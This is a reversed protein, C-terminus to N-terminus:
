FGISHAFHSRAISGQALYWIQSSFLPHLSVLCTIHMCLLQLPTKLPNGHCYLSWSQLAAQQSSVGSSPPGGLLCSPSLLLFWSHVYHASCYFCCRSTDHFSSSVATVTGIVEEAAREEHFRQLSSFTSADAPRWIGELAQRPGMRSQLLQCFAACIATSQLPKSFDCCEKKRFTKENAFPLQGCAIIFIIFICTM